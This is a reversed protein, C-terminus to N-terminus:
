EIQKNGKIPTYCLMLLQIVAYILKYIYIYAHIYAHIYTYTCMNNLTYYDISTNDVNHISGTDIIHLDQGFLPVLLYTQTITASKYQTQISLFSM